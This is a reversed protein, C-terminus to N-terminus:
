GYIDLILYCAVTVIGSILSIQMGSMWDGYIAYIRGGIMILGSIIETACLISKM